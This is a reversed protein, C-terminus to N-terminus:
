GMRVLAERAQRTQRARPDGRALVELLTRAGPTGIRELIDLAREAFLVQSPFRTFREEMAQLIMEARLRVELTPGDKLVQRLAPEVIDDLAILAKVAAERQAFKVADLDAMLDALRANSVVPVPALRNRLEAVTEDPTATLVAAARFAAEGDAGAMAKWLAARKAATLEQVREAVDPVLADLDYILVSTDEVAVALSRGDPAFALGTVDRVNADPSASATFTWLRVHARADWLSVLGGAHATALHRGDRSFASIGVLPTDVGVAATVRLAELEVWVLEPNRAALERSALVHRGDPTFAHFSWTLARPVERRAPPAAATEWLHMTLKEATVLWRGDPSLAVKGGFWRRPIRARFSAAGVDWVLVEELRHLAVTQGDASVDVLVFNGADPPTVPQLEGTQVNWLGLGAKGQHTVLRNGDLAFCRHTGYILGGHDDWRRVLAGTAANWVRVEGLTTVTAVQAGGPLYTLWRVPWAHGATSALPRATEIHFLSVRHDNFSVAVTKGDPAFAAASVWQPQEITHLVKGTAPDWVRVVPVDGGPGAIALRQGDQAFWIAAASKVAPKVENVTAATAPNVIVTGSDMVVALSNDGAGFALGRVQGPVPMQHVEKGTAVEWVSVQKGGGAALLTGGQSFAAFCEDRDGFLWQPPDDKTADAVYCRGALDIAAVASGRAAGYLRLFAANPLRLQRVLKGTGADWVGLKDIAYCAVVLKGDAAFAVHPSERQRILAPAYWLPKGTAADWLHLGSFTRGALRKGDPSFALAMLEEGARFRVTGLRAVAGSPLPDGHLDAATSQPVALALTLLLGPNM